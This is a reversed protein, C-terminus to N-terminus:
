QQLDNLWREIAKKVDKDNNSVVSLKCLHPKSGKALNKIEYVDNDIYLYKQKNYFMRDIEITYQFTMNQSQALQQTTIGVFDKNGIVLKANAVEQKRDGTEKDITSTMDCIIVLRKNTYM